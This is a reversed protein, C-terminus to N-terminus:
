RHHPGVARARALVATRTRPLPPASAPAGHPGRRRPHRPARPRHPPKVGGDGTETTEEIDSQKIAWWVIYFLALIPLKLFVFLYLMTWGMSPM